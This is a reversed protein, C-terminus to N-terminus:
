KKFVAFIESFFGIFSRKILKADPFLAVLEKTSFPMDLHEDVDNRGTLIKRVMPYRVVPHWGNPVTTLIFGGKKTVRLAEHAAQQPDNVHELIDSMLVLDFTGSKFPLKEAGAIMVVKESLKKGRLRNKATFIDEKSIDIGVINVGQELLPILVIGTNCGIDLVKKHSYDAASLWFNLRRNHFIREFINGSIRAKDLDYSFGHLNNKM